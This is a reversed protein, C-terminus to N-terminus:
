PSEETGRPFMWEDRSLMQEAEKLAHMSPGDVVGDKRLERGYTLSMYGQFAALNGGPFGLSRLVADVRERTLYPGFGSFHEEAHRLEWGGRVQGCQYGVPALEDPDCEEGTRDENKRASRKSAKGLMLLGAGLLLIPGYDDRLSM